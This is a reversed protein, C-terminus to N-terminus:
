SPWRRPSRTAPTTSRRSWTATPSCASTCARRRLVARRRDAGALGPEAAGVPYAECCSRATSTSRSSRARSTRSSSTSRACAAWRAPWRRLLGAAAGLRRRRGAARRRPRRRLGEARDDRRPGRRHAAAPSGSTAPLDVLVTSIRNGGEEGERRVSVPVLAVPPRSPREGALEFLRRSCARRGRRPDRRQRHRRRGERRDQARGAARPGDRLPPQARHRPQPVDDAGAPPNRALEALLETAKRLDGAARFPIPADAGPEAGQLFLRQRRSCRRPPWGRSTAAATTPGPAGVARGPTLDMPEPTPDLMVTGVDVAAVGDVLAHHMKPLLAVRGAAFGDVM